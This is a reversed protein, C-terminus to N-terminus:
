LQKARNIIPQLIEQALSMNVRISPKSQADGVTDDDDGSSWSIDSKPAVEVTVGGGPIMDESKWGLKEYVMRKLDDEIGAAEFKPQIKALSELYEHLPPHLKTDLKSAGDNSSDYIEDINVKYNASSYGEKTWVHFNQTGDEGKPTRGHGIATATDTIYEALADAAAAKKLYFALYEPLIEITSRDLSKNFKEVPKQMEPFESRFKERAEEAGDIQAIAVGVALLIDDRRDYASKAKVSPPKEPNPNLQSNIYSGLYRFEDVLPKWQDKPEQKMLLKLAPGLADLQSQTIKNDTKAM